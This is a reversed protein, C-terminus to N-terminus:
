SASQRRKKRELREFEAALRECIQNGQLDISALLESRTAHEIFRDPLGLNLVKVENNQSNATSWELVASGLGGVVSNEELTVILRHAPWIEALTQAPLPKLFRMNVVTASLGLRGLRQAAERAPAVMSGIALLCIDDGRELIEAEGMALLQPSGTLSVGLGSGRPYRLFCPGSDHALASALMHRLEDEDKPAMIHADPIPRLYSLDFAGHHTPGDEGV